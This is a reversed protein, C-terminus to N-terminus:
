RGADFAGGDVPCVGGAGLLCTGDGCDVFSFGCGTSGPCACSSVMGIPGGDDAVCCPASTPADRPFGYNCTAEAPCFCLEDSPCVTPDAIEGYGNCDVCMGRARSSCSPVGLALLVSLLVLRDSVRM